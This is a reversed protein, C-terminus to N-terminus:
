QTQRRRRADIFSKVCLAVFTGCIATMAVTMGFALPREITGKLATIILMVVGGLFALLGVLVAIHMAHKRMKEQFALSGLILLVVGFGAPILATMSKQEPFYGALGIVILLVGIGITIGPVNSGV